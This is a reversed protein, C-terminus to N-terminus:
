HTLVRFEISFEARFAVSILHFRKYYYYLHLTARERAPPSTM